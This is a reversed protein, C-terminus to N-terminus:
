ANEHPDEKNHDTESSTPDKHYWALYCSALHILLPVSGALTFLLGFILTIESPALRSVALLLTGGVFLSGAAIITQLSM